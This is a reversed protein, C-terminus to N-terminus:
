NLGISYACLAKLKGSCADYGNWVVCLRISDRFLLRLFGRAVFQSKLSELSRNTAHNSSNRGSHGGVGRPKPLSLQRQNSQMRLNDELSNELVGHKISMVDWSFEGQICPFHVYKPELCNLLNLQQQLSLKQERNQHQRLFQRCLNFTFPAKLVKAHANHFFQPDLNLTSFFNASGTDVFLVAITGFKQDISNAIKVVDELASACSPMDSPQNRSSRNIYSLQAQVDCTYQYDDVFIAKGLRGIKEIIERGLGLANGHEILRVYRVLSNEQRHLMSFMM